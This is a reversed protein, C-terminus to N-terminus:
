ATGLVAHEYSILVGILILVTGGVIEARHGFRAGLM